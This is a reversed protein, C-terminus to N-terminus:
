VEMSVSSGKEQYLVVGDNLEGGWVIHVAHEQPPELRSLWLVEQETHM